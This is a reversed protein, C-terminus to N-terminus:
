EKRGGIEVPTTQDPIGSAGSGSRARLASGDGFSRLHSTDEMESSVPQRRGARGTWWVGSGM